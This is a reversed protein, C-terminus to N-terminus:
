RSGIAIAAITPADIRVDGALQNCALSVEHRGPPLPEGTILTRAFGNTATSSTNDLADEGPSVALTEATSDIRLRCSAQAPGSVSEENGTAIVLISSREKLSLLVKTCELFSASSPDCDVSEDGAVGVFAKPDLTREDIQRGTLDNLKVDSAKVGRRDKLDVSRLSDNRVDHSGIAQIAYASGALSLILALTATVNAYSLYRRIRM